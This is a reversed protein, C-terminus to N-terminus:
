GCIHSMYRAVLNYFVGGQKVCETVIYFAGIVELVALLGEGYYEIVERM